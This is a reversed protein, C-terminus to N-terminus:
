SMLWDMMAALTFITSGKRVYESRMPPKQRTLRGDKCVTPLQADMETMEAVLARYLWLLTLVCDPDTDADPHLLQFTARKVFLEFYDKHPNEQDTFSFYVTKPRCGVVWSVLSALIFIGCQPLFLNFDLGAELVVDLMIAVTNTSVRDDVKKLAKRHYIPKGRFTKPSSGSSPFLYRHKEEGELMWVKLPASALLSPFDRKRAQERDVFAPMEKWLERFHSPLRAQNWRGPARRLFEQLREPAFLQRTHEPTACLIAQFRPRNMMKKVKSQIARIARQRRAGDWQFGPKSGVTKRPDIVDLIVM